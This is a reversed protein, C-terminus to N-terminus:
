QGSRVNIHPPIILCDYEDGISVDSYKTKDDISCGKYICAAIVVGISFSVGHKRKLHNVILRLGEPYEYKPLLYDLANLTNQFEEAYMGSEVELHFTQHHPIPPFIGFICLNPYKERIPKIIKQYEQPTM